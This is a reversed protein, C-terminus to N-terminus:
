SVQPSTKSNILTDISINLHKMIDSISFGKGSLFRVLKPYTTHSLENSRKWKEINQQLQENWETEEVENLVNTIIENSIGKQKLHFKIKAAGWGKACLKSKVFNSAFREDNLFEEEILENLNNKIDEESLLYGKLKTRVEAVSRDQYACFKRIKTFSSTTYPM